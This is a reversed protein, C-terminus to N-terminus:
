GWKMLSTDGKVTDGNIQLFVFYRFLDRGELLLNGALGMELPEGFLITEAEFM